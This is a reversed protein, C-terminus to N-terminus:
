VTCRRLSPQHPTAAAGPITETATDIFWDDQSVGVGRGVAGQGSHAGRRVPDTKANPAQPLGGNVFTGTDLISM